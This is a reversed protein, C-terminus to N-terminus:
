ARRKGVRLVAILAAMCLLTATLLPWTPLPVIVQQGHRGALLLIEAHPVVPPQLPRGQDDFTVVSAPTVHIAMTAGFGAMFWGTGTPPIRHMANLAVFGLLVLTVFISAAISRRTM